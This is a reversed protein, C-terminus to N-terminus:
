PGCCSSQPAPSSPLYWPYAPPLLLFSPQHLNEFVPSAIAIHSPLALLIHPPACQSTVSSSLRDSASFYVPVFLLPCPSVLSSLHLLLLMTPSPFWWLLRRLMQHCTKLEQYQKWQEASELGQGCGDGHGQGIWFFPWYGTVQFVKSCGDVPAWEQSCSCCSTPLLMKHAVGVFSSSTSVIEGVVGLSRASSLGSNKTARVGRMVEMGPCVSSVGSWSGCHISLNARLGVMKGRSLSSSMVGGVDGIRSIWLFRWPVDMGSTIGSVVVDTCASNWSAGLCLVLNAEPLGALDGFDFLLANFPWLVLLFPCICELYNFLCVGISIEDIPCHIPSTATSLSEVHYWYLEWSCSPEMHHNTFGCRWTFFEYTGLTM